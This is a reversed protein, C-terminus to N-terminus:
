MVNRAINFSSVLCCLTIGYLVVHSIGINCIKRIYNASEKPTVDLEYNVGLRISSSDASKATAFCAQNSGHNQSINKTICM